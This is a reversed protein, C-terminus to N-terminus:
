APLETTAIVIRDVNEIVPLLNQAARGRLQYPAEQPTILQGWRGPQGGGEVTPGVHTYGLEYANQPNDTAGQGVKFGNNNGSGIWTMKGPVMFPVNVSSTAPGGPLVEGEMDYVTLRIRDRADSSLVTNGAMNVYKGLTFVANDESLVQIQNAEQSLIADLTSSHILAATSASGRLLRKAEWVDAWFASGALHYADTGAITRETLKNDDPVGYDVVLAIDNFTWDILGYCLAQGRLWEARDILAQLIVKEYFNLAQTAVAEKSDASSGMGNLWAQLQRTTEEPMSVDIATKATQELFTSATVLGGAPYPSDMGVAGAMTPRVEMTGSQVFYSNRLEEPLVTNFMYDSSPRISASLEFMDQDSLDALATAFNLM